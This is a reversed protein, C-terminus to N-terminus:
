KLYEDIIDKIEKAKIKALRLAEDKTIKEHGGDKRLWLMREYDENHREVYYHIAKIAGNGDGSPRCSTICISPKIMEYEKKVKEDLGKLQEFNNNYVVWLITKNDTGGEFFNTNVRCIGWSDGGTGILIYHGKYKIIFRGDMNRPPNIGSLMEILNFLTTTKGQNRKGYLVILMKKDM